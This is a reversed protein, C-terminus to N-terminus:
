KPHRVIGWVGDKLLGSSERKHRELQIDALTELAFGASFLGVALAQVHPHYGSMVAGQHRFPATFPLAVIVQLLAEPLFLGSLAKNWFGEEKKLSDYGADDKGAKKTRYAVHSFLRLGWATVGTLLLREPWSLIKFATAIPLGDFFIRRGVASWWANIVPASPWLWDKADVRDLYRGAGWAAVALSSHLALSPGITDKFIGVDFIHASYLPCHRLTAPSSSTSPSSNGIQYTSPERDLVQARVQVPEVRFSM